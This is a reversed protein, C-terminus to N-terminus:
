ADGQPILLTELNGKTLHLNPRGLKLRRFTSEERLFNMLNQLRNESDEKHFIVKVSNMPLIPKTTYTVKIKSTIDALLLRPRTSSHLTLDCTRSLLDREKLMIYNIEILESSLQGDPRIDGGKVVPHLEEGWADADELKLSKWGKKWNFGRAVIVFEETIPTGKQGEIEHLSRTPFVPSTESQFLGSRWLVERGDWELIELDTGNSGGMRKRFTLLLVEVSAGQEAFYISDVCWTIRIYDCMKMLLERLPHHDDLNAIGIPVVFAAAAGPSMAKLASQIFLSFTNLKGSMVPFHGSDRLRKTMKRGLRRSLLYPPNSIIALTSEAELPDLLLNRDESHIRDDSSFRRDFFRLADNDIDYGTIMSDPFVDRIAQTLSGPGCGFDVIEEPNNDLLEKLELALRNAIVEPTLFQGNDKWLKNADLYARDDEHLGAGGQKSKNSVM